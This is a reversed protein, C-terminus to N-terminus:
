IIYVHVDSIYAHDCYLTLIAFFIDRTTRHTFWMTPMDTYVIYLEHIIYCTHLLTIQVNSTIIVGSM